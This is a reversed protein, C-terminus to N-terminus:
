GNRAPSAQAKREAALPALKRALAEAQTFSLHKSSWGPPVPQSLSLMDRTLALREERKTVGCETFLTGLRTLQADTASGPQDEPRDDGPPPSTWQDDPLPGNRAAHHRDARHGNGTPTRPQWTTGATATAQAERADDDDGAPALGITALLTYRRAYTIASGLSQPGGSEPLPYDGGIGAKTPWHGLSYRLVLKSDDERIMPLCTWYLGLPALLPLIADHVDALDAYKGYQADTSKTVRPLAAQLNALAEGLSGPLEAAM